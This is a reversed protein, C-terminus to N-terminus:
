VCGRLECSSTLYLRFAGVSSMLAFVKDNDRATAHSGLVYASAAQGILCPTNPM